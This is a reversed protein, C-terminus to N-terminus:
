GGAAKKFSGTEIFRVLPQRTQSRSFLLLVIYFGPWAFVITVDLMAMNLKRTRGWTEGNALIHRDLLVTLVIATLAGIGLWITVNPWPWAPM